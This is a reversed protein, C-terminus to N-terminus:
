VDADGKKGFTGRWLDVTAQTAPEIPPLGRKRRARWSAMRASKLRRATDAEDRYKDPQSRRHFGGPRNWPHNVKPRNAPM